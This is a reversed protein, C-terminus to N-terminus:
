NLCTWGESAPTYSCVVTRGKVTFARLIHPKGSDFLFRGENDFIYKEDLSLLSVTEDAYVCLSSRGCGAISPIPLPSFHADYGWIRWSVRHVYDGQQVAGEYSCRRVQVPGSLDSAQLSLQGNVLPATRDYSSDCGRFFLRTAAAPDPPTVPIRLRYDSGAAIKSSYGSWPLGEDLVKILLQGKMEYVHTDAGEFSPSVTIDVLCSREAIGEFEVSKRENNVYNWSQADLCDAGDVRVAGEHYGQVALHVTYLPDGRRVLVEGLGHFVRGQVYFEATPYGSDAAAPGPDPRLTARCGAALLALIVFAVKM